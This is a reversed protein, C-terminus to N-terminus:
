LAQLMRHVEQITCEMSWQKRDKIVNEKCLNLQKNLALKEIGVRLGAIDGFRVACGYQNNNIIDIADGKPLAGLIPLGLNIYEYLKSPVCMGYYDKELSVFGVDINEQMFDIFESHPMNPVITVRPDTIANIPKYHESNGIFYLEIDLKKQEKIAEYLIEPKQTTSMLGAYAIRLKKDSRGLPKAKCTISKHYGFYNNKIKNSLHPFNDSLLSAYSMSSTLVLDSCEMYKKQVSARGVHFKRDRKMGDTYGYNLPDRFNVVLKCGVEKKLLAGLKIMGLEGGCTAFLIDNSTIRDKLLNFAHAVWKDLYDEYYGIRELLSSLKQRHKRKFPVMLVNEKFEEEFSEYNPRVVVVDWGLHTLHEVAGRRMLAGGGADYPAYSRTLYYVKRNM